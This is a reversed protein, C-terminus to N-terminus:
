LFNFIETIASCVEEKGIEDVPLCYEALAKSMWNQFDINTASGSRTCIGKYKINNRKIQQILSDWGRGNILNYECDDNCCCCYGGDSNDCHEDPCGKAWNGHPPADYIHIIMREKKYNDADWDALAEHFLGDIGCEPLDGGGKAGGGNIDNNDIWNKIADLDETFKTGKVGGYASLYDEEDCHDRYFCVRMEMSVDKNDIQKKVALKAQEIDKNMSSTADIVFSIQVNSIQLNMEQVPVYDKEKCYTM